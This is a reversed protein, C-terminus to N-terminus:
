LGQNDISSAKKLDPSGTHQKIKAKICIRPRNLDLGRTGVRQQLEVRTQLRATKTVTAPKIPLKEAQTPCEDGGITLLAGRLPISDPAACDALQPM